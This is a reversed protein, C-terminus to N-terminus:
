SRMVQKTGLILALISLGVFASVGVVVPTNTNSEYSSSPMFAFEIKDIRDTQSYHNGDFIGNEPTSGDANMAEFRCATGGNNSQVTLQSGDQSVTVTGGDVEHVGDTLDNLTQLKGCDVAVQANATSSFMTMGFIVFLFAFGIKKM